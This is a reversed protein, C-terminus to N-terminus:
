IILPDANGSAIDAAWDKSADSYNKYKKPEQKIGGLGDTTQTAVNKVKQTHKNTKVKQFEVQQKIIDDKNMELYATEFSTIGKEDAYKQVIKRDYDPYGNSKTYKTEYQAHETEYVQNLVFNQLKNNDEQVKDLQDKIAKLEENPEIFAVNDKGKDTNFKVGQAELDKLLAKAGEETSASSIRANWRDVVGQLDEKEKEVSNLKTQGSEYAYGKEALEKVKAQGEVTTLDIEREEDRFKLTIKDM